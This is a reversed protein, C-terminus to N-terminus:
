GQEDKECDKEFELTETEPEKEANEVDGKNLENLQKIFDDAKEEKEQNWKQNLLRYYNRLEGELQKQLFALQNVTIGTVAGNEVKQFYLGQANIREEIYKLRQWIKIMRGVFILKVPNTINMTQVVIEFAKKYEKDEDVQPKQCKLTYDGPRGRPRRIKIKKFEM